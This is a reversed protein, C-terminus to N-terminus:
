IHRPGIIINVFDRLHRYLSRESCVIVQDLCECRITGIMRELTLLGIVIEQGSM